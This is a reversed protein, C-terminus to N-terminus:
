GPLIKLVAAEVEDACNRYAELDGGIPDLVGRDGLMCLQPRTTPEIEAVM